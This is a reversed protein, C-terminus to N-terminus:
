LSVGWFFLLVLLIRLNGHILLTVDGRRVGDSGIRMLAVIIQCLYGECRLLLCLAVCEELFGQEICADDQFVLHITQPEALLVEASQCAVIGAILMGIFGPIMEIQEIQTLSIMELGVVTDTMQLYLMRFTFPGDQQCVGVICLIGLKALM